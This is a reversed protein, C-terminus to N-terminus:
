RHLTAGGSLRDRRVRSGDLESRDSFTTTASRGASSACNTPAVSTRSRMASIGLLRLDQEGLQQPMWRAGRLFRVSLHRPTRGGRTAENSMSKQVDAGALTSLGIITRAGKRHCERSAGLLIQAMCRYSGFDAQNVNRWHRRRESRDVAWIPRWNRSVHDGAGVGANIVTQRPDAVEDNKKSIGTTTGFQDANAQDDPLPELM